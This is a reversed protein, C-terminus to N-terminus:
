ACAVPRATPHAAAHDAPRVDLPTALLQTKGATGRPGESTQLWMQETRADVAADLTLQHLRVESIEYEFLRDDNTYVQVLMGLMSKPGGSKKQIAREYIPGFMGDRAHAYLYTARGAGPQGLEQIFMAVDCAPYTTSSGRPKVVPLDIGLASVVVRTAVRDPNPTPSAPPSTTSIPVPSLSRPPLSGHAMASPSPEASVVEPALSEPPDVATGSGSWSIAGAVILMVGTTGLVAPLARQRLASALNSVSASALLPEATRRGSM